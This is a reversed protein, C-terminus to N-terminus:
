WNKPERMNTSTAKTIPAHLVTGAGLEVITRTGDFDVCEIMKEVLFRSSPTISGVERWNKLFERFFIVQDM